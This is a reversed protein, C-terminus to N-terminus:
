GTSILHTSAKGIATPSCRTPFVNRLKDFADRSPADAFIDRLKFKDDLKKLAVTFQDEFTLREYSGESGRVLSDQRILFEPELMVEARYVDEFNNRIDHHYYVDEKLGLLEPRELWRTKLEAQYLDSRHNNTLTDHVQKMEVHPEGM